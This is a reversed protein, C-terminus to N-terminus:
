FALNVGANINANSSLPLSVPAKTLRHPICDSGVFVKLGPLGFTILGGFRTGYTGTSASGSLSFCKGPRLTAILRLEESGFHRDFYESYLLGVSLRDYFPMAYNVGLNMGANLTQRVRGRNGMDDLQGLTALKDTFRTLEDDNDVSFTYESTNVSKLGNTSAVMNNSWNIFGLDTVSASFELGAFTYTAGLDVAAGFGGPKRVQDVKAGSVYTTKNKDDYSTEYRFGDMSASVEADVEAVYENDRLHINATRIDTSLRAGGVLFKFNAGLRLNPNVATSHGVSVEAWATASAGLPSLDYTTNEIGQKAMRFLDIPLGVAANARANISVTTYSTGSKIGLALITARTNLCLKGKDPLSNLVQETSVAPNLFTTTKGDVNYLLHSLGINGHLGANVNGAGPVSVFTGNGALAPNSLFRYMYNSDFYGSALNQAHVAAGVALTAAIAAIRFINIKM